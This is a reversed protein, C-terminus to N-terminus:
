TENEETILLLFDYELVIGVSEFVLDGWFQVFSVAKESLSPGIISTATTNMKASNSTKKDRRLRQFDPTSQSTSVDRVAPPWRGRKHVGKKSSM